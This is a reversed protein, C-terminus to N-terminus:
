TPLAYINRNTNPGSSKRSNPTSLYLMTITFILFRVTHNAIHNQHSILVSITTTRSDIYCAWFRIPFNSLYVSLPVHSIPSTFPWEIFLELRRRKSKQSDYPCLASPRSKYTLDHHLPFALLYRKKQVAHVALSFTSYGLYPHSWDDACDLSVM